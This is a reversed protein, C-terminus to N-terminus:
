QVSLRIEYDGSGPASKGPSISVVRCEAVSTTSQALEAQQGDITAAVNAQDDIVLVSVAAQYPSHIALDATSRWSCKAFSVPWHYSKCGDVKVKLGALPAYKDLMGLVALKKGGVTWVKAVVICECESRALQVSFDVRDGPKVLRYKDSRGALGTCWLAYEGDLQEVGLSEEIDQRSLHDKAWCQTSAHRCNWAGIISGHALPVHVSAFMAPGDSSGQLNDWFWRGPLATAPTATKVVRVDGSKTSSILRDIISRDTTVSPTDSVLTPGPSLARLLAHYTPWSDHPATAFMDFDPVLSLHSTLISGYINFQVYDPHQNEYGLNFDDSNRRGDTKHLSIDWM